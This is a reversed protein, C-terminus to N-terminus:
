SDHLQVACCISVQTAESVAFLAVLGMVVLSIMGSDSLKLGACDFGVSASGLATPLTEIM